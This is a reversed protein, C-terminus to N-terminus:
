GFKLVNDTQIVAPRPKYIVDAICDNVKAESEKMIHSYIDTTTSVRAHGLRKSISVADVGNFFLISAQTHRFAHANLYPLGYKKSFRRLYGGVTGPHLSGGEENTFIYESGRWKDGFLKTQELQWIRYEKLLLMMEEPLNINRISTKTKPTDEYVGVGSTYMLARDILIQNSHWNVKNWKLGLIEGLRGGTVIFLHIMTRWKISETELAELIQAVDDIQLYNPTHEGVKPPRAKSAPNYPILMEKEADALVTSVIQHYDRITRNSLPTDDATFTFIKDPKINLARAIDEASAVDINKGNCARVVTNYHISVGECKPIAAQSLGREKLLAKLHVKAVARETGRKIGNQALQEYLQNIHQPRIDKLKMHGMAENILVLKKRYHHETKVKLIGTRVKTKIVYDAYHAFTQRSDMAVGLKCENEFIAAQKHAEREATKEGWGDPVEWTMTYPKLQKGTIPDRGKHVRISYSIIKGDKNKRPQINAM